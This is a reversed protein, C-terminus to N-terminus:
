PVQLVKNIRPDRYDAAGTIVEVNPLPRVEGANHTHGCLVTLKRGPFEPMIQMITEGMAACTFHPAWNDDGMRGQYWCAERVPPLHTLLIVEAHNALAERLHVRIHEAAEDGLRRLVDRREDKTFGRLEEILLYDNLMITSTEYDGARADCWGDHGILATSPSLPCVGELTLYNLKPRDACLRQVQDRVRAISSHYYDHNGLVFYIPCALRDDMVLLWDAMDHSEAIDGGLLVAEPEEDDVQAFLHEARDLGVFNLHIDTLWVIPKMRNPM